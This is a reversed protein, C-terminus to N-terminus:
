SFVGAPTCEVLKKEVLNLFAKNSAKSYKNLISRFEKWAGRYVNNGIVVRFILSEFMDMGQGSEEVQLMFNNFYKKKRLCLVAKSEWAILYDVEEALLDGHGSLEQLFTGAGDAELYYKVTDSNQSFGSRDQAYLDSYPLGIELAHKIEIALWEDFTFSDVWNLLNITKRGEGMRIINIEYESEAHLDKYLALRSLEFSEQWMPLYPKMSDLIEKKTHKKNRM